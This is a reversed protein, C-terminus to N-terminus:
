NQKKGYWNGWGPAFNDAYSWRSTFSRGDASFTLAFTGWSIGLVCPATQRWIGNVVNGNITGEIRGASTGYTGTVKNGQIKLDLKGHDTEWVGVFSPESRTNEM